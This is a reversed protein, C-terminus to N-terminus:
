ECYCERLVFVERMVTTAAGSHAAGPAVTISFKKSSFMAKNEVIANPVNIFYSEPCMLNDTTCSRILSPDINANFEAYSNSESDSSMLARLKVLFNPKIATEPKYLFTFDISGNANVMQYDSITFAPSAALTDYTLNYGSPLGMTLKRKLTQGGSCVPRTPMSNCSLATDDVEVISVSSPAVVEVLDTNVAILNITGPIFTNGTQRMRLTCTRLSNDYTAELADVNGFSCRHLSDVGPGELKFEISEGTLLTSGFKVVVPIFGFPNYSRLPLGLAKIHVREVSNKDISASIKSGAYFPIEPANETGGGSHSVSARARLLPQGSVKTLCLASTATNLWDKCELTIRCEFLNEDSYPAAKTNCNAAINRLPMLNTGGTQNFIEIMATEITQGCRLNTEVIYELNSATRIINWIQPGNITARTAPLNGSRVIASNSAINGDNTVGNITLTYNVGPAFFKPNIVIPQPNPNSRDFTEFGPLTTYTAGEFTLAPSVSVDLSSWGSFSRAQFIFTNDPSAPNCSHTINKTSDRPSIPPTISVSGTDLFYSRLDYTSRNLIQNSANFSILRFDIINTGPAVVLSSVARGVKLLPVTILDGFPEFQDDNPLPCAPTGVDPLLCTPPYKYHLFQVAAVDETSSFSSELEVRGLQIASTRYSLSKGQRIDAESVGQNIVSSGGSLIDYSKGATFKVFYDDDIMLDLMEEGKVPKLILKAAVEPAIDPRIVIEYGIKLAAPKRCTTGTQCFATYRSIAQFPCLTSSETCACRRGSESYFVPSPSAPNDSGPCTVSTGGAVQRAAYVPNSSSDIAQTGTLPDIVPDLKLSEYLNFELSNTNSCSTDSAGNFCNALGVNAAKPISNYISQLNRASIRLQESVEQRSVKMGQRKFEQNVVTMSGSFGLFVVAMVFMAVLAELLTFGQQSQFLTKKLPAIVNGM